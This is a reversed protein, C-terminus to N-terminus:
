AKKCGWGGSEVLKVGCDLCVHLLTNNQTAIYGAEIEGCLECKM